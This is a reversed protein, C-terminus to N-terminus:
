LRPGAQARPGQGGRHQRAQEFRQRLAVLAQALEERSLKGDGDKDFRQMIRDVLADRAAAREEPALKGDGDKDFKELVKERIAGRLGRGPGPAPNGEDAAFAPLALCAIAAVLMLKKM